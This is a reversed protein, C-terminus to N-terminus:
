YTCLINYNQISQLITQIIHGSLCLKFDEGLNSNLDEEEQLAM